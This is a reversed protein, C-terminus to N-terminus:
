RATTASDFVLINDLYINNGGMFDDEVALRLMPKNAVITVPLTVTKWQTATPVFATSTIGGTMLDDGAYNQILKWGGNNWGNSDNVNWWWGFTDTVSVLGFRAAAALDFRVYPNTVGTFDMVPLRIGRYIKGISDAPVEFANYFLSGNGKGYASVTSRAWNYTPYGVPFTEWGAPPFTSSEFDQFYPLKTSTETCSQLLVLPFLLMLLFTFNKM